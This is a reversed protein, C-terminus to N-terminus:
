LADSRKVLSGHIQYGVSVHFLLLNDESLAWSTTGNREVVRGVNVILDQMAPRKPPRRARAGPSFDYVRLLVVYETYWVGRLVAFFRSGSICSADTITLEVRVITAFPQWKEWGIRQDGVRQSSAHLRLDAASVIIVYDDGLNAKGYRARCVVGVIRQNPDACHPGVGMQMSTSGMLREPVYITALKNSPLEFVIQRTQPGSTDWLVLSQQNRVESFM